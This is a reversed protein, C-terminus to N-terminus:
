ITVRSLRFAWVGVAALAAAMVVSRIVSYKNGIM